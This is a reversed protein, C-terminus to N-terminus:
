GVLAPRRALVQEAALRAHRSVSEGNTLEPYIQATTALFLGDVPAALPPILDTSDLGHLPEVYRERHVKFAVVSRRDFDPLMAALHELWVAAIEDDSRRQWDSDPSTYKPLYVLHHGGVFGPDIYSTTEIVGTFPVREDAVYLTWHGTLPRDLVLIPCVIGLYDTRGLLDHYGAPADPILRRFLATQVTSVVADLPRVEDELRVGAVRGQRIVIERVPSNLRIRGGAAVIREALAEILTDYGGILHGALDPREGAAGKPNTRVVRAWVYTAPVQDFGRDFKAKFMPKWVRDFATRGGLGVLWAEASIGELARWDRVRQARLATLGLRLRDIPGLPPFRLLDFPGNLPHIRGRHYFGTRTPKFRLRDALGLEASLARLHGDGSLIAHYFRDVRTGDELTLPGALGGLSPSAEFLEVQEGQRALFYALCVGLIGGGVIGVTM